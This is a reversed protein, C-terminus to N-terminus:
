QCVSSTCMGSTCDLGTNCPSGKAPGSCCGATCHNGNGCDGPFTCPNGVDNPYCENQTCHGGGICQLGATCATGLFYGGCANKQATPPTTGGGTSSSSSSNTTYSGADLTACVADKSPDHSCGSVDPHAASAKAGCAQSCTADTQPCSQLCGALDFGTCQSPTAQDPCVYYAGGVCCYQSNSPGPAADTKGNVAGGEPQQGSATVEDDGGDADAEIAADSDADGGDVATSSPGFSNRAGGCAFACAYTVAVYGLVRRTKM